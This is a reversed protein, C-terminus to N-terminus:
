EFLLRDRLIRNVGQHWYAPCNYKALEKVKPRGNSVAYSEAACSMMGLDNDNDGFVFTEEPSIGFYNQLFALAKGKDVEPAMFDVWEEGAMCCKLPGDWKPILDREGIQRISGKQYIAIKISDKQLALFDPVVEYKNHYSDRILTEFAEESNELYSGETTSIVYRREEGYGRLEQILKKMLETDMEKSYLTKGQYVIHSGNECLFILDEAVEEFLRRISAYQRGSSICVLIGKARLERITDFLEPYMTPSSDKVLTGDIDSAVLKASGKPLHYGLKWLEVLVRDAPLGVVNTYDGEFAEIYAGFAGQIAYAGAKDDGEGSDVYAQIEAETMAQVKVKTQEAFTVTNSGTGSIHLLTVGTYVEHSRGALQEIMEKAHQRNKPKGLIQGDYAVVTDAGIVVCEESPATEKTNQMIVKEGVAKAKRLSLEKVTEEPSLGETTEDCDSVAVEFAIGYKTLIEKRRPSGSALLIKM